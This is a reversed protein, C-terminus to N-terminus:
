TAPPGDGIGEYGFSTGDELGPAPLGLPGASQAIVLYDSVGQWSYFQTCGAPGPSQARSHDIAPILQFLRLGAPLATPRLVLRASIWGLARGTAGDSLKRGGLPAHLRVRSTVLAAM